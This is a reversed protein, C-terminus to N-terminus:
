DATQTAYSYWLLNPILIDVDSAKLQVSVDIEIKGETPGAMRGTHGAQGSLIPFPIPIRLDRDIPFTLRSQYSM